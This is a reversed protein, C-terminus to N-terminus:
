LQLSYTIKVFLPAPFTFTEGGVTVTVTKADYIRPQECTEEAQKYVQKELAKEMAIKMTEM